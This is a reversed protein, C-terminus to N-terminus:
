AFPMLSGSSANLIQRMRIRSIGPGNEQTAITVLAEDRNLRGPLYEESGASMANM